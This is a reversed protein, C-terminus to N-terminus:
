NSSKKKSFYVMYVVLAFASILAILIGIDDGLAEKDAHEIAVALIKIAVATGSIIVAPKSDEGRHGTKRYWWIAIIGLIVMLSDDIKDAVDNEKIIEYILTIGLISIFSTVFFNIKVYLEKM